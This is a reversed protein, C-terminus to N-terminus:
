GKERRCFDLTFFFTNGDGGGKGRVPWLALILCALSFYLFSRGFVNRELTGRRTMVDIM